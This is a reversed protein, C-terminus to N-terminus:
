SIERRRFGLIGVVTAAAFWCAGVALCRGFFNWDLLSSSLMQNFPATLMVSGIKQFVPSVLNGLLNSIEPLVLLVAVHSIAAVTSSRVLFFLAITLAQAGLWLPLATLLCFGTIQLMMGNSEPDGPLLARCLGLYVIVMVACLCVATVCSAALKGLYIRTRPLGFSVENKLTNSKYQESYVMDGVPITCYLGVILGMMLISAGDSFTITNVSTVNSALLIVLAAELVLIVLLFIYTYPRHLVKFIEARLYSLFGDKRM